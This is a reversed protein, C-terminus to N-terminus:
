IEQIPTKLKEMEVTSGLEKVESNQAKEAALKAMSIRDEDHKGM